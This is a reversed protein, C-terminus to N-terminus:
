DEVYESLLYRNEQIAFLIGGIVLDLAVARAEGATDTEIPDFRSREHLRAFEDNHLLM